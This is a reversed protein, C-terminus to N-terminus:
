SILLKKVEEVSVTAANNGWSSKEHNIIATVEEPTLNNDTGVGTMVAYEPRADYGQMIIKVFLDLDDGLVIPSNKLPPFAGQM